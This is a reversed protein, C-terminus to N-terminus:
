LAPAGFNCRGSSEGERNDLAIRSRVFKPVFLPLGITPPTRLVARIIDATNPPGDPTMRLHGPIMCEDRSVILQVYSLDL